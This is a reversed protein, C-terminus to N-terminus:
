QTFYTAIISTNYTTDKYDRMDNYSQHNVYVPCWCITITYSFNIRKFIM